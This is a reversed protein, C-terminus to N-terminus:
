IEAMLDRRFAAYHEAMTRWLPGPRGDGVPQGNLEVVPRVGRTSSSIWIETAQQLDRDPIPTEMVAIGHRHALEIILDRTIGGLIEPGLPPTKLQRDTLLFVNSSSGETVHGNRILIAEDAGALQAEQRLM